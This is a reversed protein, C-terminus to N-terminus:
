GGASLLEAFVKASLFAWLQQFAESVEAFVWWGLHCAFKKFRGSPEAEEVKTAFKGSGILGFRDTVKPSPSSLKAFSKSILPQSHSVERLIARGLRFTVTSM